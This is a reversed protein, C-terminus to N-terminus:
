PGSGPAGGVTTQRIGAQSLADCRGACGAGTRERASSRTRADGRLGLHVHYLAEAHRGPVPCLSRLHRSFQLQTTPPLLQLHSLPFTQIPSLTAPRPAHLSSVYMLGQIVTVDSWKGWTRTREKSALRPFAFRSSPFRATTWGISANGPRRRDM